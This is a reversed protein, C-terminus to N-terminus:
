YYKNYLVWISISAKNWYHEKTKSGNHRIWQCKMIKYLKDASCVKEFRKMRKYTWDAQFRFLTNRIYIVKSWDWSIKAKKVENRGRKVLTESREHSEWNIQNIQFFWADPYTWPYKKSESLCFWNEDGCELTNITREMLIYDLPIQLEKYIEMQYTPIDIVAFKKGAYKYYDLVVWSPVFDKTVEWANGSVEQANATPLKRIDIKIDIKLYTYLWLIILILICIFNVGAKTTNKSSM